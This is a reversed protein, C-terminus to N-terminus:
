KRRCSTQKSEEESDWEGDGEVCRYKIRGDYASRIQFLRHPTPPRTPLPTIGPKERKQGYPNRCGHGWLHNRCFIKECSNCKAFLAEPRDGSGYHGGKWKAAEELTEGCLHCKMEDVQLVASGKALSSQHFTDSLNQLLDAESVNSTGEWHFIILGGAYSPPMAIPYKGLVANMRDRVLNLLIKPDADNRGKVTVTFKAPVKELFRKLGGTEGDAIPAKEGEWEVKTKVWIGDTSYTTAEAAGIPM